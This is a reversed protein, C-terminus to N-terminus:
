TTPIEKPQDNKMVMRQQVISFLNSILFYLGLGSPVTYSIWAFLAPFIYTTQRMMTTAMQEDQAGKVHPPSNKPTLMKAQVFQTLGVIVALVVNHNKALNLWGLSTTEVPTTAYFDRLSGYLGALQSEKLLHTAPDIQIGSIFVQYLAFLFPLQILTPLCSSLPNVKHERYLAMTQKALEQRNDKYQQQLAKLKPQLVQLSRSSRIQSFSPWILLGRIILTMGVIAVGLDHGPLWRVLAMLGNFIPEYFLTTFLEAM